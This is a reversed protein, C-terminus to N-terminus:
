KVAHGFTYRSVYGTNSGYTTLSTSLKIRPSENDETLMEMAKENGLSTALKLVNDERVSRDETKWSPYTKTDELLKKLRRMDDDNIAQRYAKTSCRLCCSIVDKSTSSSPHDHDHWPHSELWTARENKRQEILELQLRILAKGRPTSTSSTKKTRTQAAGSRKRKKSVKPESDQDSDDSDFVTTARASKATTELTAAEMLRLMARTKSTRGLRRPITADAGNTQQTVDSAAAINEESTTSLTAISLDNNGKTSYGTSSHVRDHFASLVDLSEITEEYEWTGTSNGPDDRHM